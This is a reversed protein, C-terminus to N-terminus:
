GSRLGNEGRTQRGLQSPNATAILALSETHQTDIHPNPIQRKRM